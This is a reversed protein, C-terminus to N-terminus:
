GTGGGEGLQDTAQIVSAAMRGKARDRGGIAPVSRTARGLGFPPMNSYITEFDGPRIRYMEHWIGVEGTSAVAKNFAAWAPRHTRSADTAYRELDEVSRWYQIMVTPNGFWSEGGLFGAAPDRQLESLMRPMAAGVRWWTRVSRWRNVRMGILFVVFPEEPAATVRGQVPVAMVAVGGSQVRWWLHTRWWDLTAHLATDFPTRQVPGFSAEFASGDTVFPETHQYGVAAVERVFPQILGVLRLVTLSDAGITSPSGAAAAVAECFERGTLAEQAPLHWIRGGAEPRDGLTALGAAIDPLFATSHPVDLSGIWRIPKGM